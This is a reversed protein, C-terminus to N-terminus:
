HLINNKKLENYMEKIGNKLGIYEINNKIYLSKGIYNNGNSFIVPIELKHDDLSNIYMLIDTLSWKESYTANNDKPLKLKSLIQDKIVTILDPLYIFDMLKNELLTFNTKNIYAKLNSKIFRHDEETHYFCGFVRLNIFNPRDDFIIRKAIINKSLGYFDLPVDSVVQNNYEVNISFSRNFEAGTGLNIFHIDKDVCATMLNEFVLLNEHFNEITDPVTRRGGKIACHVIGDIGRTIERVSNLDKLNVTQRNGEVIQINKYKSLSKVLEKGIFGNSGTVLIKM